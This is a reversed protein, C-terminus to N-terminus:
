ERGWGCGQDGHVTHVRQLTVNAVRVVVAQALVFQAFTGVIPGVVSAHGCDVLVTLGGLTLTQGSGVLAIHKDESEAASPNCM